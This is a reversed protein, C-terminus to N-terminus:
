QRQLWNSLTHVHRSLVIGSPMAFGQGGPRYPMKTLVSILTQPRHGAPACGHLRPPKSLCRRPPQQLFPPLPPPLHPRALGCDLAALGRRACAQQRVLAQVVAHRPAHRHRARRGCTCCYGQPPWWPVQTGACSPRRAHEGRGGTNRGSRLSKYRRPCRSCMRHLRFPIWWPATQSRLWTRDQCRRGPLHAVPLIQHPRACAPAGPGAKTAVGCPTPALDAPQYASKPAAGRWRSGTAHLCSWRGARGQPCRCRPRPWGSRCRTTLAPCRAVSPLTRSPLSARGEHGGGGAHWPTSNGRCVM